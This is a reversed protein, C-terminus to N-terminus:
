GSNGKAPGLRSNEKKWFDLRVYVYGKIIVALRQQYALVRNWTFVSKVNLNYTFPSVFQRCITLKFFLFFILKWADSLEHSARSGKLRHFILKTVESVLESSCEVLGTLLLRVLYVCGICKSSQYVSQHSTGIETEENDNKFIHSFVPLNFPKSLQHSLLNTRFFGAARFAACICPPHPYRSHTGM